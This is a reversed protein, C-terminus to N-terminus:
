GLGMGLGLGLGLGLGPAVETGMGSSRESASPLAVSRPTSLARQSRRMLTPGSGEDSPETAEATEARGLEGSGVGEGWPLPDPNPHPDPNASM